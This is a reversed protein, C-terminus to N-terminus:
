SPPNTRKCTWKFKLVFICRWCYAKKCNFWRGPVGNLVV